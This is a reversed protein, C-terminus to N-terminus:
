EYSKVYEFLKQRKLIVYALLFLPVAALILNVRPYLIWLTTDIVIWHYIYIALTSDGLLRVLALISNIARNGTRELFYFVYILLYMFAFSSFVYFLKIPYMQGSFNVSSFNNFQLVGSIMALSSFVLLLKGKHKEFGLMSLYFCILFPTLWLILPFMINNRAFLLDAAPGTPMPFFYGFYIVAAILAAISSKAYKTRSLYLFLPSIILFAGITLIISIPVTFSRLSLIDILNMKGAATFQWYYPEVSFNYIYLKIINYLFYVGILEGGRKFLKKAATLLDYKSYAWFVVGGSTAIFFLVSPYLFEKFYLASGSLILGSWDLLHILMISIIAWGKIYSFYYNRKTKIKTPQGM